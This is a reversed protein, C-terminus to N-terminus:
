IIRGLRPGDLKGPIRGRRAVAKDEIERFPITKLGM